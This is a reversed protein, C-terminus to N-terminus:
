PTPILYDTESVLLHLAPAIKQLLLNGDSLDMREILDACTSILLSLCEHRRSNVLTILEPVIEPHVEFEREAALEHWRVIANCAQLVDARLRSGLSICIEDSAAQRARTPSPRLLPVILIM